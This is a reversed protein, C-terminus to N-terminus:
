VAAAAPERRAVLLLHTDPWPLRRGDTPDLLEAVPDFRHEVIWENRWARSAPDVVFGADTVLRVWDDVDLDCFREHCESLWNGVYDKTTLFEMAERLTLEVEGPRGPVPTPHFDAGSLRPFDRAFQDLRARTSLSGVHDTVQQPDLGDLEVAAGPDVGDDTRLRLVVRREGGTPGVVDSNIWVGGPRTHAAIRRALRHLDAPGDGYSSIEHTLALTITTDVTADPFVPDALLNRQLFWVNPNAFVGQAKRHEAEAVLHRAVDVGFLDSEHLEPARAAREVLGGTACGLDVVRGPRVFPRVQEWKRDSAVEFSEAYSRYDRTETLDGEASVVPDTGIRVVETVLDYRHYVDVTAPHALEAWRPDGAVLLELVDWPRRPELGSAALRGATEEDAEVAVVPYGLARYMAAVEPTSCAVVTHEPHPRRGLETAVTEVVTSAFRDTPRTDVVAVVASPLQELTSAREIAAERRNAAVPNRRTGRHNASTVAWVVEAGEAMPVPRGDTDCVRGALLEHLYATQFRTLLHHRGPLLIQRYGTM